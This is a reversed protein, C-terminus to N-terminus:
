RSVSRSRQVGCQDFKLSPASQNNKSLDSLSWRCQPDDFHGKVYVWGEKSLQLAGTLIHLRGEDCGVINESPPAGTAAIL